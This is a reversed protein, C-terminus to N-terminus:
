PHIRWLVDETPFGYFRLLLRWNSPLKLNWKGPAYTLTAAQEDTIRELIKLTSELQAAFTELIDEGKVFDIDAQAYDAYEGPQPRGFRKQLEPIM